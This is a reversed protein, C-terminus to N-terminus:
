GDGDGGDTEEKPFRGLMRLRENAEPTDNLQRNLEALKKYHPNGRILREVKAVSLDYSDAEEM